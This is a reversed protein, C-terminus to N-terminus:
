EKVWQGNRLIMTEGTRPNRIRQAPASNANGQPAARGSPASEAPEGNEDLGYRSYLQTLQMQKQQAARTNIRILKQIAAQTSKADSASELEKAARVADGETQVGKNLRLSDNILRTKDSDWAAYARSKDDTAGALNRAKATMVEWPALDLTGAQLSSLHGQMDSVINNATNVSDQIDFAMKQAPVPMAKPADKKRAAEQQQLQLRQADMGLQAQQYPTITEPKQYPQAIGGAAQAQPSVQGAGTRVRPQRLQQEMWSNIQDDPLGMSKLQQYDQAIRQNEEPPLDSFNVNVPNDGGLSVGGSQQQGAVGNIPALDFGGGPTGWAYGQATQALKPIMGAAQKRQIDLQALQPNDKLLMLSQVDAPLNSYPNQQAAGNSRALQYQLWQPTTADDWEPIQLGQRQAAPMITNQYVGRQAAPDKFSLVGRAINALQMNRQNEQGMTWKSINDAAQPNIAAIQQLTADRTSPDGTFYSKALDNVRMGRVGNYGNDFAQAGREYGTQGGLLDAVSPLTAM